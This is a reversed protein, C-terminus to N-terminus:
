GNSEGNIKRSDFAYHKCSSRVEQGKRVTINSTGVSDSEGTDLRKDMIVLIGIFANLENLSLYLSTGKQRAYRNSETVIINLLDEGFINLFDELPSESVPLKPGPTETFTIPTPGKPFNDDADSDGEIDSNLAQEESIGDIFNFVDVPDMHELEKLNVKSRGAINFSGNTVGKM